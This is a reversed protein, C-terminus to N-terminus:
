WAVVLWRFRPAGGPQLRYDAQRRAGIGRWRRFHIAARCKANPATGAIKVVFILWHPIYEYRAHLRVTASRKDRQREYSSTTMM